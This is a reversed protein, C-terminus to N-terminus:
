ETLAPLYKGGFDSAQWTNEGDGWVDVFKKTKENYTANMYEISVNGSDKTISSYNVNIIGNPRKYMEDVQYGAKRIEEALDIGCAEKLEAETIPTGKYENFDGAAEDYYFYYNKWTHGLFMGESEKGEEYEFDADYASVSVCYDDVYDPQHVAGLGSMSSEKCKGNEVYFLFTVNSTAYVDNLTVFSKKDTIDMQGIVKKEESVLISEFQHVNECNDESVFWLSGDITSWDEDIEGGVVVFAETTGDGDFDKVLYDKVDEEKANAASVAKSIFFSDDIETKAAGAVEEQSSESATAEPAENTTTSQDAGKQEIETVQQEPEAAQQVPASEASGCASLIGIGLVLTGCLIALRNSRMM